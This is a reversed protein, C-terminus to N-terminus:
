VSGYETCWDNDLSNLWTYLVPLLRNCDCSMGIAIHILAYLDIYRTSTCCLKYKCALVSLYDLLGDVLKITRTHNLSLMVDVFGDLAKCSAAKVIRKICLLCQPKCCLICDGLFVVM